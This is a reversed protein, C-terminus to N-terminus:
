SLPLVAFAEGTTTPVPRPDPLVYVGAILRDGPRLPEKLPLRVRDYVVEGPWWLATPYRGELPYSDHQALVGGDASLLQVFVTFNRDPRSIASWELDVELSAPEAALAHATLLELGGQFSAVPKPPPPPPAQGALKWLAVEVGRDAAEPPDAAVKGSAEDYMGVRVSLPVANHRDSRGDPRLSFTYRDVVIQGPQWFNPPYSGRGTAGDYSAGAGYGPDPSDIHIFTDLWRDTPQKLRWYLTLGYSAGPEIYGRATSEAGILEVADAFVAHIPTASSPLQGLTSPYAYAPAVVVRPVLLSVAVAAAGAAWALAPLRIARVLEAWGMAVLLALCAIAPLFERAGPLAIAGAYAVLEALNIAPWLLILWLWPQHETRRLAAVLGAALGILGLSTTVLYLAPPSDVGYAGTSFLGHLIRPLSDLMARLIDAISGSFLHNRAQAVHGDPDAIHGNVALMGTFDGYLLQNRLMWWGDVVAVMVALKAVDLLRARWTKEALLAALLYPAVLGAANFKALIALAVALAALWSWLRSPKAVWLALLLITVSSLATVLDDNTVFASLAAFPPAAALALGAGLGLWPRDPAALWGLRVACVVTVMGCALSLLEVLRAALETGHPFGSFPRHFLFNANGNGRVDGAHPNQALVRDFDDTPVPFSVAAGLLYYLPFQAAEQHPTTRRDPDNLTPFRKNALLYRVYRFHEYSDPGELIPTVWFFQGAVV